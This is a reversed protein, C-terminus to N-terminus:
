RCLWWLAFQLIATLITGFLHHLSVSPTCQHQSKSGSYFIVAHQTTKTPRLSIVFDKCNYKGSQQMMAERLCPQLPFNFLLRLRTIRCSNMFLNTLIEKITFLFLVSLSRSLLTPPLSSETLVSFFPVILVFSHCKCFMLKPM